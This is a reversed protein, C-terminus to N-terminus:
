VNRMLRDLVSSIVKEDIGIADKRNRIRTLPVTLGGTEQELFNSSRALKQKKMLEQIWDIDVRFNVM